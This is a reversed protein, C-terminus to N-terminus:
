SKQRKQCRAGGEQLAGCRRKAPGRPKPMPTDTADAPIYDDDLELYLDNQHEVLYEDDLYETRM